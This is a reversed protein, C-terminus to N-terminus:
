SKESLYTSIRNDLIEAAQEPTREGALVPEYEERIMYKLEDPFYFDLKMDFIYDRLKDKYEKPLTSQANDNQNAGDIPKYITGNISNSYSIDRDYDVEFQSKLVPIGLTGNNEYKQLPKRYKLYESVFKWANEKDACNKVIGYFESHMFQWNVTGNGCNSPLGVFTVEDYNLNGYVDSALGQNFGNIVVPFVLQADRLGRSEEDFIYEHWQEDSMREFDPEFMEKVPHEACFRLVDVFNSGSFNCKCNDIDICEQAINDLMYAALRSDADDIFAMGEPLNEYFEMAQEPTWNTYKEGVFKTKAVATSVFFSDVVAPLEGDITLAEAVNPLFDDRSLGGYEDMLPYLDAMAGKRIYNYMKDAPAFLIDPSKGQIMDMDLQRAAEAYETGEPMYNKVEIKFDLPFQTYATLKESYSGFMGVTLVQRGDEAYQVENLKVSDSKGSSCATVACVLGLVVSLTILKKM